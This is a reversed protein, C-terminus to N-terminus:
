HKKPAPFKFVLSYAPQDKRNPRVMMEPIPMPQGQRPVPMLESLASWIKPNKVKTSYFTQVFFKHSSNEVAMELKGSEAARKIIEL